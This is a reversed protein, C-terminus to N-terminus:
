NNLYQRYISELDTKIAEKIKSAFYAFKEPDNMYTTMVSARIITIKGVRNWEQESIGLEKIFKLPSDGYDTKSFVTHSVIYPNNYLNGSVYSAENYLLHNLKNLYDLKYNGREMVVYDVMNFDPITLPHVDIIKGDINFSLDKLFNYYHYAGEISSGILKGYGSINLPLTRYAAWVSAATAGAKSGELIYAGLLSPINVGKEFVYTAFYSIINRMRIDKIAIGGASYPIYGMKHPDITVSDSYPMYKYATYVDKKIYSNNKDYFVNYKSCYSSLDEYKIFKNNEDLFLSRAYGGYAADIHFYFNIGKKSLSERLSVIKDIPDVAGEETSGVVGVVCLIPIRKEILDSIINSLKDVDMRYNNDVPVSIIQNLGIGLIDAAKLWSYHKTQPVLIKGLKHLNEGGRASKAKIKELNDKGAKDVLDLIENTSMNLLAWENKDSVLDPCVEKVALPISKINRAYWLAELNAISGDASIHGWGDKYGILKTFDYGVEEEMESTAPSSEYAVNNGDWLIAYNYALIAPMLTESNMHGWYRGASQWPVSNTRMRQSLLNLVKEMKELTNNFKKSNKESLSIMKKDQPMYNLRWGLHEDVLKNLLRKYIDGNESKDGIMLAHIDIDDVSDKFDYDEDM